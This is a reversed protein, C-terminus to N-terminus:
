GPLEAVLEFSAISPFVAWGAAAAEREIASRDMCGLSLTVDDDEEEVVVEETRGDDMQVGPRGESGQCPPMGTDAGDLGVVAPAVDHAEGVLPRGETCTDAGADAVHPVYAEEVDKSGDVNDAEVVRERPQWGHAPVPLGVVLLNQRYHLYRLLSLRQKM